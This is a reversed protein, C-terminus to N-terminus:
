PAITSSGDALFPRLGCWCLEAGVHDRMAQSSQRLLKQLVELPLRMRARCFAPAKVAAKALHRLHIMATNFSLVQLIFLHVTRVPGYQRERWKHGANHAASLISSEPLFPELDQQIRRLTRSVNAM